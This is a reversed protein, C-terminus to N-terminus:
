SLSRAPIRSQDLHRPAPPAPPTPRRRIALGGLVIGVLGLAIGGLALLRAQAADRRARREAAQAATVALQNSVVMRPLERDLRQALQGADVAKVPPFSAKAPDEVDNFTGPGSTFAQDVKQGKVTGRLHFKYRGAASPIFWARYDGPTGWDDGFAPELSLAKQQGGTMVMVELTDGLDRVPQGASDSIVVQVSNRSGAYAPEEGFGVVFSYREVKRQEHAAAPGAALTLLAAAVAAATLVPAIRSWRTRPSSRTRRM